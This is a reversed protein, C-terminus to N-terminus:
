TTKINKCKLHDKQIRSILEKDSMHSTYKKRNCSNCKWKKPTYNTVFFKFMWFEISFEFIKIKKIFHLKNIKGKM